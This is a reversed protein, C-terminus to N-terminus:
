EGGGQAVFRAFVLWVAVQETAPGGAGDPGAGVAALAKAWQSLREPWAAQELAEKYRDNRHRALLRRLEAAFRDDPSSLVRAAVAVEYPFRGALPPGQGEDRFLAVLADFGGVADLAQWPSALERTEGSRRLVTVAVAAKGALAKAQREAERAAALAADLPYLHHVVAVGASATGMTEATRTKAAFEVALAHALPVAEALPALLLVDDGGNYVLTAHLAREATEGPVRVRHERELAQRVWGSFEALKRSLEEHAARPDPAALCSTVRQGMGDGDLVVVAYYPSPAGGAAKHLAGLADTAARLRGADLNSEAVGYSDQLRPPRLTEAFLLDGDYPWDSDHARARYLHPGLCAELAARYTQLEGGAREKARALFDAAAVTSTSPIPARQRGLLPSFRKCVGLADLRERGEPRLLSPSVRASVQEWYERARSDTTHLAARRGSLSDKEGAEEAPAFARTRKAADLGRSAEAYAAAYAPPEYRAAAWYVEWPSGAAGPPAEESQTGDRESTQRQWIALWTDDVPVGVEREFRRRAQEALERWRAWLAREAERGIAGAAEWPVIAVLKNPVDRGAGAADIGAPYVLTGRAALEQAAARALAVLTQSGAYLDSARRAEAIYGQVPGFTFVLVAEPM